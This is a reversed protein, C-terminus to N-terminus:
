ESAAVCHNFDNRASQTLRYVYFVLGHDDLKEEEWITSKARYRELLHWPILGSEPIKPLRTLDRKHLYVLFSDIRLQGVTRLQRIASDKRSQERSIILMEAYEIYHYYARFTPYKQYVRPPYHYREIFKKAFVPQTINQLYMNVTSLNKLSRVDLRGIILLLVDNPLAGFPPNSTNVRNPTYHLSFNNTNKWDLMYRIYVPTHTCCGM